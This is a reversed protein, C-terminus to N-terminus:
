NWGNEEFHAQKKERFLNMKICIRKFIRVNIIVHHKHTCLNLIEQNTFVRKEYFLQNFCTFKIGTFNWSRM